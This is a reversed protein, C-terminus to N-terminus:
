TALQAMKKAIHDMVEKLEKEPSFDIIKLDKKVIATHGPPMYFTDGTTLREEAGTDYKILIEGEVIYGWHPCQCSNNKLGELLPSIDTGAPLENFAVTMGGYGSFARMITGPSEMIMPIEEKKIKM